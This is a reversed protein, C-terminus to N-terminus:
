NPLYNKLLDDSTLSEEWDGTKLRYQLLLENMAFHASGAVDLFAGLEASVRALAEKETKGDNDILAHIREHIATLMENDRALEAVTM